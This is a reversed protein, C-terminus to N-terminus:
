VDRGRYRALRTERLEGVWGQAEMRTIAAMPWSAWKPGCHTAWLSRNKV